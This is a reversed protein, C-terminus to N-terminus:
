DVITRAAIAGVAGRNCHPTTMFEASHKAQVDVAEALTTGCAARICDLIAKRAAEARTADRSLFVTGTAFRKNLEFGLEEGVARLFSEPFKILLGCGDGTKGDAAVAGRHTLRALAEIATEVVWHSPLDDLNAILGFGCSDRHQEPDLLTKASHETM